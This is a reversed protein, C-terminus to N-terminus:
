KNLHGFDDRDGPNRNIDMDSSPGQRHRRKPKAQYEVHNKVYDRRADFATGYPVFKVREWGNQVMCGEFDHYRQIEDISANPPPPTMLNDYAREGTARGDQSFGNKISGLDSLVKIETVCSAIDRNLTDQAIPGQQYAADAVSTRQWYQAYYAAKAPDRAAFADTSFSLILLSTALLYRM